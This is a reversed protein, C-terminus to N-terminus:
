NSVHFGLSCTFQLFIGNEGRNEFFVVKRYNVFFLVSSIKKLEYKLLVHFGLSCAFQQFIRKAGAFVEVYFRTVNCNAVKLLCPRM